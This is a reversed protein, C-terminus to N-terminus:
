VNRCAWYRLKSELIAASVAGYDDLM